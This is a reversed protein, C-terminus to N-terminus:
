AFRVQTTTTPADADDMLHIAIPDAPAEGDDILFIGDVMDLLNVPAAGRRYPPIDTLAYGLGLGLM